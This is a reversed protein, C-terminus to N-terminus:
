QLQAELNKELVAKEWVGTEENDSMKRKLKIQESKDM